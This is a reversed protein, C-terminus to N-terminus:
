GGFVGQLTAGFLGDAELLALEAKGRLAEIARIRAAFKHQLNIPPLSIKMKKLKAGTLHAITASSSYDDFGGNKSQFYLWHVLFDPSMLSEKVRVRHLAKQYYCSQLEDDWIAARGIDGGECILVDGKKLGYKEEESEEIDMTHLDELEFRFWQVNANRLYKRQRKGHQKKKDLMKGLRSDALEGFLRVPWNVAKDRAFMELFVAEGLRGYEAVEARLSQRLRDIQDLRHAIKQQNAFEPVPVLINNLAGQTLKGRTAGTISMSLDAFNLFYCLYDLSIGECETLVHAHNNVWVKGEYIKACRENRGWSGGDEAICLIRDDFIYEDIYGM